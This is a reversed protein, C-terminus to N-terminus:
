PRCGEEKQGKAGGKDQVDKGAVYHAAVPDHVYRGAVADGGAHPCCGEIRTGRCVRLLNAPRPIIEILEVVVKVEDRVGAALSSIEVVLTVYGKNTTIGEVSRIMQTRGKLKGRVRYLISEPTQLLNVIRKAAATYIIRM